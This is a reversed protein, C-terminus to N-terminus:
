CRRRRRDSTPGCRRRPAPADGSVVGRCGHALWALRGGLGRAASTTSRASLSQSRVTSRGLSCDPIRSHSDVLDARCPPPSSWCCRCAPQQIRLWKRHLRRLPLRGRARSRSRVSRDPRQGRQQETALLTVVHVSQGGSLAVVEPCRCGPTRTTLAHSSRPCLLRRTLHDGIRSATTPM